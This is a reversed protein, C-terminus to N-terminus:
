KITYKVGDVTYYYSLVESSIKSSRTKIKDIVWQKGYEVVQENIHKINDATLTKIYTGSPKNELDWSHRDAIGGAEGGIYYYAYGYSGGSFDLTYTINSISDSSIDLEDKKCSSFAVVTILAFLFFLRKM